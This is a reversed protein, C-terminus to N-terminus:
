ILEFWYVDDNTPPQTSTQANAIDIGGGVNFDTEGIDQLWLTNNNYSEPELFSVNVIDNLQSRDKEIAAVLDDEEIQSLDGIKNDVYIKDSKDVVSELITQVDTSLKQKTVTGNQISQGDNFVLNNIQNRLVRFDFCVPEEVTGVWPEGIADISQNNSNISYDRGEKLVVTNKTVILSDIDSNFAIIDGTIFNINSATSKLDYSGELITTTTINSPINEEVEKFKNDIKDWNDNLITEINFTSNGDTSPDIKYLNLNETNSPM